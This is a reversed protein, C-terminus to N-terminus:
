GAWFRRQTLRRLACGCPGPRGPGSGACGCDSGQLEGGPVGPPCAGSLAQVPRARPADRGGPALVRPGRPTARGVALGVLRAGIVRSVGLAWVLPVLCRQRGPRDSALRLGCRGCQWGGLTRVPARGGLHLVAEAACQSSLWRRVVKRGAGSKGVGAARARGTSASYLQLFRM